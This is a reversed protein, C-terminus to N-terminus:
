VKLLQPTTLIGVQQVHGDEMMGFAKSAAEDSYQERIKSIIRVPGFSTCAWFFHM